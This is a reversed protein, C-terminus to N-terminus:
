RDRVTFSQQRELTSIFTSLFYKDNLLQEFHTTALEYNTFFGYNRLKPEQILPNDPNGPFFVKAVFDRHSLAPVGSVSLSHSLSILDSQLELFGQKCQNKVSNELSDLHLRVRKLEREVLSKKHKIFAFYVFVLVFAILGSILLTLLLSTHILSVHFTSEYSLFGLEHRINEGIRIVVMPLGNKTKKGTEDTGLPQDKPPLCILKDAMLSTLNCAELGVTVNVEAKTTAQGLNHGEIVLSDGNNHFKIAHKDNLPYFQPDEVYVLNEHINNEFSASRITNVGDMIFAMKCILDASISASQSLSMQNANSHGTNVHSSYQSAQYQVKHDYVIEKISPSPCQMRTSTIVKCTTENLLSNDLALIALKPQQVATLNSGFVDLLRGGSKFSKLPSIKYIKPDETYYFPNDLTIQANDVKLLLKKVKYSGESSALTQCLLKNADSLERNVLCAIKDLFVQVSSGVNLNSGTLTLKTGGSKPGFRPSIQNLQVSLFSFKERWIINSQNLRVVIQSSMARSVPRTRCAISNSVNYGVLDCLQNGVFVSGNLERWQDSLSLGRITILTGGELPGNLPQISLILPSQCSSSSMRKSSCISEHECSSDCWNCKYKTNLSLCQSCEPRGSDKALLNCKFMTVNISDISRSNSGLISLTASKIASGASYSFAKEDCEITNTGIIRADCLVKSDEVSLLCKLNGESELINHVKIQLRISVNNPILIEDIFKIRPCEEVSRIIAASAPKISPCAAISSRCVNDSLCWVCNWDSNSCTRCTSHVNCNYFVYGGHLFNTDLDGSRVALNVVAHDAGQDIKPRDKFTPSPCLLGKNVVRAILSANNPGFVCFYESSSSFKDLNALEILLEGESDIPLNKPTISNVELCQQNDMSLWQISHSKEIHNSNVCDSKMTCRNRVSCWGCFPDQAQLCDSCSKFSRCDSTSIKFIQYPSSAFVSSKSNDVLLDSLVTHNGPLSIRHLM